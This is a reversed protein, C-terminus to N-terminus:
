NKDSNQRVSWAVVQAWQKLRTKMMEPPDGPSFFSVPSGLPDLDSSAGSGVSGAPSSTVSMGRKVACYMDLAPFTEALKKGDDGGKVTVAFGDADFLGLDVCGQIEDLDDETVSRSRMLRREKHISKRRIWAEEREVEPSWSHQKLLGNTRPLLPKNPGGLSSSLPDSM